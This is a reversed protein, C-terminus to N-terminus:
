SARDSFVSLRININIGSAAPLRSAQFGPLLGSSLLNRDNGAEARRETEAETGAVM